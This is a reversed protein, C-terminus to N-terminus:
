AKEKQASHAYKRIMALAFKVIIKSIGSEHGQYDKGFQNWEKRLAEEDPLSRSAAVTEANYHRKAADWAARLRELPDLTQLQMWENAWWDKFAHMEENATEPLSAPSTAPWGTEESMGYPANNLPPAKEEQPVASNTAMAIYEIKQPDTACAPWKPCYGSRNANKYPGHAFCIGEGTTQMYNATDTM